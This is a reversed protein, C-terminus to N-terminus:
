DITDSKEDKSAINIQLGLFHRRLILGILMQFLVEFTESKPGFVKLPKTKILKWFHDKKEFNENHSEFQKLSLRSEPSILAKFVM